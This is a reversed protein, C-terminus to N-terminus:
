LVEKPDSEDKDSEVSIALRILRQVEKFHEECAGILVNARGIRIFYGNSTNVKHECEQCSM